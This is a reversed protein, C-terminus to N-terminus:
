HRNLYRRGFGAGVVAIGLLVVTNTGDPVPATHTVLELQITAGLGSSAFVAENVATQGSLTTLAGGLALLDGIGANLAAIGAANLAITVVAGTDASTFVRNGYTTGAGLDVFTAVSDSGGLAAAPTAVDFLTYTESADPSRYAATQIRLLGSDIVQGDLSGLDFTFFNRYEGSSPGPAIAGAVYNREHGAGATFGSNRYWGQATRDITFLAASASSVSLAAVLALAGFSKYFSKV